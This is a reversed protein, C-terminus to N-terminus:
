QAAYAAFVSTGGDARVLLVDYAQRRAGQEMGPSGIPMGPVALGKAAPKEALLRKIERAPVHGEIAYGAIEGTHCSGLRAPIGLRARAAGNGVDRVIVAFGNAEVHKVWEGCCGCSPDKYVDITPRPAAFAPLAAGTLVALGGLLLTRRRMTNRQM